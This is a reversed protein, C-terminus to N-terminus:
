KKLHWSATKRTSKVMLSPHKSPPAEDPPGRLGGQGPWVRPPQLADGCDWMIVTGPRWAPSKSTGCTPWGRGMGVDKGLSTGKQPAQRRQGEGCDELMQGAPPHGAPERVRDRKQTLTLTGSGCSGPGPFRRQGAPCAQGRPRLPFVAMSPFTAAPGLAM